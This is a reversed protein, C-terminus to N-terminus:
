RYRLYCRGPGRELVRTVDESRIVGGGGGGGGPGGGGGGEKLWGVRFQLCEWSSVTVCSGLVPCQTLSQDTGGGQVPHRKRRREEVAARKQGGGEGGWGGCVSQLIDTVCVCVCASVSM